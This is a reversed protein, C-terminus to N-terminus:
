QLVEYEVLFGSTAEADTKQAFLGLGPPLLIPFTQGEIVGNPAYGNLAARYAVTNAAADDVGTPASTKAMVRGSTINRIVVAAALVKIGAVNSAPAVITQLAVSAGLFYFSTALKPTVCVM